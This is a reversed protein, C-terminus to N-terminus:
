LNADKFMQMLLGDYLVILRKGIKIHADTYLEKCSDM